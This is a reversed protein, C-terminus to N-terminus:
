STATQKELYDGEWFMLKDLFRREIFSSERVAKTDAMPGGVRQLYNEFEKIAERFDPRSREETLAAACSACYSTYDHVKGVTRLRNFRGPNDRGGAREWDRFRSSQNM